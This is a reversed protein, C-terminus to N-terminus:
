PLDKENIATMKIPEGCLPCFNFNFEIWIDDEGKIVFENGYESYRGMTLPKHYDAYGHEINQISGKGECFDCM